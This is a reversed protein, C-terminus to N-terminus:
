ENKTNKISQGVAGVLVPVSILIVVLYHGIHAREPALLLILGVYFQLLIITIQIVLKIENSM